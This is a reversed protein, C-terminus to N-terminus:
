FNGDKYWQPTASEILGLQNFERYLCTQEDCSVDLRGKVNDHPDIYISDIRELEKM